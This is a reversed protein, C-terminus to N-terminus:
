VKSDKRLPYEGAEVVNDSAFFGRKLHPNGEFIIGVLDHAECEGALAGPILDIISSIRPSDRPLYTRIVIAEEGPLLIVYYDLRVKNEDKLDTAVITSLYFGEYGLTTIMDQFVSRVADSDVIFVKRNPKVLGKGKAYKNLFSLKEDSM